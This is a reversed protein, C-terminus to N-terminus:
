RGDLEAGSEADRAILQTVAVTARRVDVQRVQILAAVRIASALIAM